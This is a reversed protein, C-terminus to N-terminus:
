SKRLCESELREVLGHYKAQLEEGDRDYEVQTFIAYMEQQQDAPIAKNVVPFLKSDEKHIHQRMLKVYEMANKVVNESAKEDGGMYKELAQKMAQTLHRGVEHEEILLAIPGTDKSFGKSVLAPFLVQEEKRHHCDDVFGKIFYATGAFFRMYVDEGRGLRNTARELSTLVREILRHEEMLVQTPNMLLEEKVRYQTLPLQALM